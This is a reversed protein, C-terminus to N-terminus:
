THATVYYGNVYKNTSFAEFTVSTNRQLQYITLSTNTTGPGEKTPIVNNCKLTSQSYIQNNSVIISIDDTRSVSYSNNTMYYIKLECPQKGMYRCAKNPETFYPHAKCYLEVHTGAASSNYKIHDFNGFIIKVKRSNQNDYLAKCIKTLEDINSFMPDNLNGPAGSAKNFENYECSQPTGPSDRICM